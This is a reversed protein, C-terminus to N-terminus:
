RIMDNFQNYHLYPFYYNYRNNCSAIWMWDCSCTFNYKIIEKKDNFWYIGVFSYISIYNLINSLTKNNMSFDNYLRHKMECILFMFLLSISVFLCNHINLIIVLM